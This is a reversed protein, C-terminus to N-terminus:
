AGPFALEKRRFRAALVTNRLLMAVTMPGVGGPVPTILGAREAAEPAVDGRLGEETRTIGVDIVCAGQKVMEPRVIGPVGVAAVLVDARAVEAALDRTRSHCITVTAHRQLLLHAVPKGVIDSRGIVVAEAGQLEVGYEELLAIVGLPTGGVHGPDGLYLQGANLPHFGDVDKVPDVARIVKAEDLGAPLPLQVLIGDIGDDANLEAVTRLLEAESTTELLRVDRAEIGVEASAKHKARIYVDSAPDDGVLITALGLRGLAAVEGAVEARIRAALAKGDM